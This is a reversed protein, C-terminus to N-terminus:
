LKIWKKESKGSDIIADILKMGRVGDEVSPFDLWTEDPTQGNIRAQLTLAVNRYINAFAELYGEPHGGPTRLNMMAAKSLYTKDGGARFIEAPLGLRKVLLTNPEHQHWEISGTEGYVKINVDNEEGACIQSCHLVGKAGNEMRILVNADDDLRRGSVFISVDACLETIKLGSIYEALNGAHTGIDGTSGGKGSRNPDTRWTAQKQGTRELATSLWGQPYEVVIKRIKGFTGSKVMERAQKVMPYGTYTHTLAFVLGSKKVMAALQEAEGTNFALPKDCVVHFGNKLALMAPEFHLHNPTVISVFDMRDGENLKSEAEFMEKYSGYARAPPLYWEEGSAKAKQPDSSLAGCVMEIHGDMLAAIRHVAGIFAGSGGGIMGMKIKRKM